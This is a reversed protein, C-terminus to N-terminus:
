GAFGKRIVVWDIEGEGSISFSVFQNDSNDTKTDVYVHTSESNTVIVAYKSKSLPLAEELTVTTSPPPSAGVSTSISGAAVVNPGLNSKYTTRENQPGKNGPYASGQGTGTVSSAM